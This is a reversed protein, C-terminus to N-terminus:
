SSLLDDIEDTTMFIPDENEIDLMEQTFADVESSALSDSIETIEEITFTVITTQSDSNEVLNTSSPTSTGTFAVICAATAGAIAASPLLAKAFKISFISKWWPQTDEEMQLIERMVNRAFMPNSAPSADQKPAQDLVSWVGDNELVNLEKANLQKKTTETPNTKM